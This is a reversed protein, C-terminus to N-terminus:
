TSAASSQLTFFLPASYLLRGGAAGRPDPRPPDPATDDAQEIYGCRRGEIAPRTRHLAGCARDMAGVVDSPNVGAVTLQLRTFLEGSGGALRPLRAYNGVAPWLVGYLSPAGDPVEGVYVPWAVAETLIDRVANVHQM